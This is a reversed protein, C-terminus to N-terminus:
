CLITSKIYVLAYFMNSVQNNEKVSAAASTFLLESAGNSSSHDVTAEGNNVNEKIVVRESLNQGFVFGSSSASTAPQVPAPVSTNSRPAASGSGLPVFKPAEQEKSEKLRDEVGETDKDKELKADDAESVKLFPNNGPKLQPPRLVSGTLITTIFFINKAKCQIRCTPLCYRTKFCEDHKSM